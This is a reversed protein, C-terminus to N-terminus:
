ASWSCMDTADSGFLVASRAENSTPSYSAIFFQKERQWHFECALGGNTRLKDFSESGLFYKAVM